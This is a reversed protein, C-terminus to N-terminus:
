PSDNAPSADTVVGFWLEDYRHGTRGSVFDHARGIARVSVTADRDHTPGVSVVWRADTEGTVEYYTYGGADRRETVVGAFAPEDPTREISTLPNHAAAQDVAAAAETTWDGCALLGLLLATV